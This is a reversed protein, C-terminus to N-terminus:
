ARVSNQQAQKRIIKLKDILNTYTPADKIEELEKRTAISLTREPCLKYLITKETCLATTVGFFVVPEIQNTVISYLTTAGAIIGCLIGGRM